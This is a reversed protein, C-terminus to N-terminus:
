NNTGKNLDANATTEDPIIDGDAVDSTANDLLTQADTEDLITDYANKLVYWRIGIYAGVVVCLSALTIIIIKNRKDMM